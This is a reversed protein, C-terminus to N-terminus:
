FQHTSKSLGLLIHFRMLVCCLTGGVFLATNRMKEWRRDHRDFQRKGESKGVLVDYVGEDGACRTWGLEDKM